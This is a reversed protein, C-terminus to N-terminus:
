RHRLNRRRSILLNTRRIIPRRRNQIFNPNRWLNFPCNGKASGNQILRPLSDTKSIIKPLPRRNQGQNNETGISQESSSFPSVAESRMTLSVGPL